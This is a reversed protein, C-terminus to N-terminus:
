HEQASKSGKKTLCVKFAVKVNNQRIELIFLGWPSKYNTYLICEIILVSTVKQICLVLALCM